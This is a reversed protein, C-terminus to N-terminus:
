FRHSIGFYLQIDDSDRNLGANAGIDLLTDEGRQWGLSLGLYADTAFEAPDEDRVAQAEIGLGLTDTLDLAIGITSGWSLHRGDGDEDVVANVQPSAQLVVGDSLEYSVPVILSAGWDGAGLPADGIPVTVQTQAALSFGSGDPQAFNLKLGVLADGIGSDRSVTGTMRDRVRESGFSTWGIQAELRDSLGIRALTDGLIFTDTRDDPGANRDWEGLGAEVQVRGADVVCPPTGLGPRDTCLQRDQAAAPVAFM